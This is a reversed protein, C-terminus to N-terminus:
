GELEKGLSFRTEVLGVKKIFDKEESILPNSNKKYRIETRIVFVLDVRRSRM